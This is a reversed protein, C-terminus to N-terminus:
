LGLEAAEDADGDLRGDGEAGAPDDATGDDAAGEDVAGWDTAEEASGAEGDLTDEVDVEPM